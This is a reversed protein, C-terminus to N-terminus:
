VPRLSFSAYALVREVGDQLGGRGDLEVELGGGEVVGADLGGVVVVAVAGHLALLQGGLEEPVGGLEDDDELWEGLEM